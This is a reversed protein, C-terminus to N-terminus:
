GKNKNSTKRKRKTNPKAWGEDLALKACSKSVEHVGPAYSVVRIGDYAYSFPKIVKIKIM